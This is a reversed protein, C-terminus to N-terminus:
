PRGSEEQAERAEVSIEFALKDFDRYYDVYNGQELKEILMDILLKTDM